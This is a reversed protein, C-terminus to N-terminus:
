KADAATAESHAVAVWKGGKKQWVSLSHIPSPVHKGGATQDVAVTYTIVIVDPTVTRAHMNSFEYSNTVLTKLFDLMPATQMGPNVGSMDVQVTGDVWAAFNTWDQKKLLEYIGRENDFVTKEAASMAPEAAAVSKGAQAQASATSSAALALAAAATAILYRKM